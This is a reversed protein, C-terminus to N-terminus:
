RSGGYQPLPPKGGFIFQQPNRELSRLTRNLDTLTRRGDSALAEIDRLGPGTFRSIGSTIEATRKDLNDALVRISKAADSVETFTSRGDKGAATNLFAQASKLVGEVQDAATNLKSTISAVDKVAKGVDESSGGLAATFRDINGIIETVKKQDVSRVIDTLEQSLVGLKESLPAITEAITGFSKMLKDVGDANDGLAASFREVNKVTNGISGANDKVLSNLGSLTADAKAAINRVTEVIDQLESREAVIVPLTQGEPPRLVPSQPDGGVLQVAVIGTALGVTELRARTDVRLPTNADVSIVANIRSPDDPQLEIRTVEGVRLGNFLVSSGRGLGTVTGSFIVRVDQRGGANGSNFWYVFGFVAALVALTFLGVLAYNARSEM